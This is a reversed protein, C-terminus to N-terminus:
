VAPPLGAVVYDYCAFISGPVVARPVRVATSGYVRGCYWTLNVKRPRTGASQSVPGQLFAAFFRYGPPLGAMATKAAYPFVVWLPFSRGELFMFAGIDGPASVGPLPGGYARMATFVSEKWSTMTATVVADAGQHSFDFPIMSGGLDNMLPEYNPREDIVPTSEATGFFVPSGGGGVGAYILAPGTCWPQAFVGM